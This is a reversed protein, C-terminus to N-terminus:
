LLLRNFFPSVSDVIFVWPEALLEFDICYSPSVGGHFAPSGALMDLPNNFYAWRLGNFCDCFPESKGGWKDFDFTPETFVNRSQTWYKVWSVPFAVPELFMVVAVAILAFKSKRACNTSLPLFASASRALAKQVLGIGSRLRICFTHSNALNDLLIWDGILVITHFKILETHFVNCLGGLAKLAYWNNCKHLLHFLQNLSNPFTQKRLCQSPRYGWKVSSLSINKSTPESPAKNSFYSPCILTMM